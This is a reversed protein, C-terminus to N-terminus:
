ERAMPGANRDLVMRRSPQRDAPWAPLRHRWSTSAAAQRWPHRDPKPTIQDNPNDAARWWARRHWWGRRRLRRGAEARYAALALAVEAMQRLLATREQASNAAGVAPILLAVIIGGFRESVVDKSSKSLNFFDLFFQRFDRMGATFQGLDANFIRMAERRKRVDTIREVSVLRDYWRNGMRLPLNWDM